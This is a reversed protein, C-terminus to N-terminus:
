CLQSVYCQSDSFYYKTNLTAIHLNLDPGALGLHPPGAQLHLHPCQVHRPVQGVPDLQSRQDLRLWDTRWIRWRGGTPRGGWLQIEWLDRCLEALFQLCKECVERRNTQGATQGGPDRDSILNIIEPAASGTNHQLWCRKCEGAVDGGDWGSSAVCEPFGVTPQKEGPQHSCRWQLQFSGTQEM